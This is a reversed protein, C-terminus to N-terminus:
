FSNEIPLNLEVLTRGKALKPMEQLRWRSREQEFDSRELRKVRVTKKLPPIRGEQELDSRGLREVEVKM